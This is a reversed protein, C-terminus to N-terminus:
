KDDNIVGNVISCIRDIDKEKLGPNNPLYMGYDDVINAFDLTYTPDAYQKCFPQREMNGCVLPRNEIGAEFLVKSIEDKKPHIIPYAFNVELNDYDIKIKWYDNKICKDYQIFNAYRLACIDDIKEMQKLGIFAQLDTARLNFSPYYFTYLAKFESVNHKKRLKTQTEINTDRDWGHSRLILLINYLEKDNTCVMGGEITSILHGFYFSFTSMLGFTGTQQGRYLSGVCECSDELLVVKNKKCLSKIEKMKAPIGLAHVVIVACPEHICILDKLHEPDLGLTDKDCECFVPEFGFQIVPSVTTSWSVAPVIIKNSKLKGRCKLAYLMILNASSGSNVFLSYKCGLWESWKKEFELTLEGKTLRPTKKLWKILANIDNKDITDNVLNIKKM